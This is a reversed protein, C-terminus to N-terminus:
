EESWGYPVRDSKLPAQIVKAEVTGRGKCKPCTRVGYEPERSRAAECSPCPIEITEGTM